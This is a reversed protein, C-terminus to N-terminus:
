GVGEKRIAKMRPSRTVVDSGPKKSAPLRAVFWFSCYAFADWLLLLYPLYEGVQWKAGKSRGDRQADRSVQAVLDFKAHIAGWAARFRVSAFRHDILRADRSARSSAARHTGGWFLSGGKIRLKDGCIESNTRDTSQQEGSKHYDTLFFSFSSRSIVSCERTVKHRVARHRCNPAAMSM